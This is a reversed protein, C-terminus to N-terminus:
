LDFRGVLEVVCVCADPSITAFLDRSAQSAARAYRILELTADNLEVLDSYTLIFMPYEHPQLKDTTTLIEAPNSLFRSLEVPQLLKGFKVKKTAGQKILPSHFPLTCVSRSPTSHVTEALRLEACISGALSRKRNDEMTQLSKDYTAYFCTNYRPLVLHNAAFKEEQLQPQGFALARM